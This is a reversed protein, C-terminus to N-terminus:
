NKKALPAKVNSDLAAATEPTTISVAWAFEDYLVLLWVSFDAHFAAVYNFVEGVAKDRRDLCMSYLRAFQQIMPQPKPATVGPISAVDVREGSSRGESRSSVM